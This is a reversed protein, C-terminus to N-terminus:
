APSLGVAKRRKVAKWEVREMRGTWHYYKEFRAVGCDWVWDWGQERMFSREKFEEKESLNWRRKIKSRTFTARHVLTRYDCTYYYSPDSTAALNFGLKRYLDGESWRLDAYSLLAYPKYNAEFYSLLKGALGPYVLHNGAYRKLEWFMSRESGEPAFPKGFTMVAVLEDNHFAGLRVQNGTDEGQLHHRNLFDKAQLYHIEKVDIERAGVCVDSLGLANRIKHKCIDPSALWEDENIM